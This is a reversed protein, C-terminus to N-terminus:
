QIVLLVGSFFLLLYTLAKFWLDNIRILSGAIIGIALGPLVLATLRVKGWDLQGGILLATILGANLILWLTSLTARFTAQTRLQRGAYYVIPPGGTAFLGHFFGGGMLLPVAGYWPIEKKFNKGFFILYLEGLSVIIIFGGLLTKLTREDAMERSFFGIAAGLAALPLIKLGLMRWEIHRYWRGVLWISQLLALSVLVPVLTKLPLLHVGLSLAIITSGFGLITEITHSLVLICGLLVLTTVATEM